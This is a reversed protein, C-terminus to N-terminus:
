PLSHFTKFQVLQFGYHLLNCGYQDLEIMILAVTNLVLLLSGIMSVLFLNTDIYVHIGNPDNGMLYLKTQVVSQPLAGLFAETVSQTRYFTVLDVGLAGRWAPLPVGIGHFILALELACFLIPSLFLGILPAVVWRILIRYGAREQCRKNSVRVVLIFMIAFPVLLIALLIYAYVVQRSSFVQHITIADTVQSYVTWGVDSVLFWARMAVQRCCHLKDHSLVTSIKWHSFCGGQPGPKPKRRQWLCICILTALLLAAFTGWLLATNRAAHTIGCVSDPNNYDFSYTKSALTM